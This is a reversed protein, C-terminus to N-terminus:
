YRRKLTLRTTSGSSGIPQMGSYNTLGQVSALKFDYYANYGVKTTGAAQQMHIHDDVLCHLKGLIRFLPALQEETYVNSCDMHEGAVSVNASLPRSFNLALNPALVNAHEAIDLMVSQIDFLDGAQYQVAKNSFTAIRFQRDKERQTLQFQRSNLENVTHRKTHEDLRRQMDSIPKNVEDQVVSRVTAHVGHALPAVASQNQDSLIM